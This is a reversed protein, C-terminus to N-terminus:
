RGPEPDNLIEEELADISREQLIAYLIGRESLRDTGANFHLADRRNRCWLPREWDYLLAQQADECEAVTM